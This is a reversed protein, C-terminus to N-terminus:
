VLEFEGICPRRVAALKARCSRLDLNGCPARSRKENLLAAHCGPGPCRDAPCRRPVRGVRRDVAVGGLQGLFPLAM